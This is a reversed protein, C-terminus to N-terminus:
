INVSVTRSQKFKGEQFAGFSLGRDESCFYFGRSFQNFCMSRITEIFPKLVISNNVNSLPSVKLDGQHSGGFVIIENNISYIDLLYDVGLVERPNKSSVVPEVPTSSSVDWVSFTETLTTTWIFSDVVGLKCVASEADLVNVICDDESLEPNFLNVLGDVSGSLILDNCPLHYLSTVTDTHLFPFDRVPRTPNHLSSLLITGTSTGVSLCPQSPHFAISCLSAGPSTKLKSIPDPSSRLDFLQIFSSDESITALLNPSSPSFASGSVSGEPFGPLEILPRLSLDTVIVSNASSVAAVYEPSSQIHILGAM